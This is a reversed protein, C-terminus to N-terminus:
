YFVGGVGKFHDAYWHIMTKSWLPHNSDMTRLLYGLAEVQKQVNYLLNQKKFGHKLYLELFYSIANSDFTENYLFDKIYSWGQEEDDNIFTPLM